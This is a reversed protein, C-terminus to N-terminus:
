LYLGVPWCDIESSRTSEQWLILLLAVKGNDDSKREKDGDSM